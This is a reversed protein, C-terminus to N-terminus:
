RPRKMRRRHRERQRPRGGRVLDESGETPSRKRGRRAGWNTRPPLYGTAQGHPALDGEKIADPIKRVNATLGQGTTLSRLIGPAIGEKRAVALDVTICHGQAVHHLAVGLNHCFYVSDQCVNCFRVTDGDSSPLRDWRKPCRSACLGPCNEIESRALATFWATDVEARLARLRDKLRARRADIAPLGELEVETRLFESRAMDQPQGRDELWDAYILRPGPYEPHALVDRVFAAELDAPRAM